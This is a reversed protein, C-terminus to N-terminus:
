YQVWCVFRASYRLQTSEKTVDLTSGFTYCFYLSDHMVGLADGEAVPPGSRNCLCLGCLAVCASCVCGSTILPSRLALRRGSEISLPGCRYVEALCCLPISRAAASGPDLTHAAAPVWLM